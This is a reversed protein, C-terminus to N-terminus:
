GVATFTFSQANSGNCTYQQLQIDPTSLANPVDLCKGSLVSVIRYKGASVQEVRWQENSGGSYSWGQIKAYDGLGGNTGPTDGNVDWAIPNGNKPSVWYQTSGVANFQWSQRATGDTACTQQKLPAGNTNTAIDLCLGSQVNVIKYFTASDPTNSTTISTSVSTASVNGAADRAKVTYSYATAMALRTDTYTTAGTTSGVLVGNRYVDYGTVGVNDTSATWTLGIQAGTVTVASPTGPRSPVTTDAAQAVFTANAAATAKWNTSVNGTAALDITATGNTSSVLKTRVCYIASAGPALTSVSFNLVTAYTGNYYSSPQASETCQSGASVPGWRVVNFANAATSSSGARLSPTVTTSTLTADGTNTITLPKTKVAQAAAYTGGVDSFGTISVGPTASKIVTSSPTLPATVSWAAYTGGANGLMAVLVIGVIATLWGTSRRRPARHRASM